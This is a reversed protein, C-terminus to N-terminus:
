LEMAFAWNNWGMENILKQADEFNDFIMASNPDGTNEYSEAIYPKSNASNDYIVFQSKQTENATNTNTTKM